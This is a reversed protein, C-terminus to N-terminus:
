WHCELAIVCSFTKGTDLHEHGFRPPGRLRGRQWVAGVLDTM